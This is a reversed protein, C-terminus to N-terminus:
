GKECHLEEILEDTLSFIKLHNFNGFYAASSYISKGLVFDWRAESSEKDILVTKSLERDGWVKGVSCDPLM